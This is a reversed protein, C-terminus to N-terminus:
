DKGFDSGQLETAIALHTLGYRRAADMVAVVRGHDVTRDAKLMILTSPNDKAAKNL